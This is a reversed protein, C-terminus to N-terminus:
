IYRIEIAGIQVKGTITLKPADDAPNVQRIKNKVEGLTVHINDNVRWQKPINLILSGFNCDVFIEVGETNLLVQDFFLELEGFYVNFKGSQLNDTHLYKGSSGFRVSVVPNNDDISESINETGNRVKHDWRNKHQKGFIISFGISILVSSLILLWYNINVLGLPKWFIMYLFAMPPFVGFFNLKVLSLIVIATLFVGILFSLISIQEFSGTQMAIIALATLIFFIGWFLNKNKM